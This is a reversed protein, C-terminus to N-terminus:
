QLDELTARLRRYAYRLRSKVTEGSAATLAAIEALSLGGEIHLLFADRQLPPVDALAAVLRRRAQADITALLPDDSGDRSASVSEEAQTVIAEDELSQLSVGHRARWHDVMRHRALTFLWTSFKAQAEYRERAGIVKLWLDQHLEDATAANGGAHRLFYRYTAAKHRAYLLEFARADGQGYARMLAEDTRPGARREPSAHAACYRAARRVRCHRRERIRFSGSRLGPVPRPRPPSPQIQIRAARGDRGADRSARLPHRDDGGATRQRARVRGAGGALVGRTRARHGAVTAAHGSCAGRCRRGPKGHIGAAADADARERSEKAESRRDRSLWGQREVPREPFLAVGIVGLDAPRGTRAAYSDSPDSFYFAATRSLDKRWGQINVYGGPELVYGSQDPSATEGTVVNVGDVSVVALVRRDTCNRIRVAYENGPQGVVYQRGHHRYVPLAEGSSRDYVDVQALSGARCAGLPAFATALITATAAALLTRRAIPISM